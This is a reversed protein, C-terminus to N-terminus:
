LDGAQGVDELALARGLGVLELPGLLGELLEAPVDVAAPLLHLPQHLLEVLQHAVPLSLLLPNIETVM